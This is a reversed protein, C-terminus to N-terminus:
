TTRGTPNAMAERAEAQGEPGFMRGLWVGLAIGLTGSGAYVMPMARSLAWADGATTLVLARDGMVLAGLVHGIIGAALPAVVITITNARPWVLRVIMVSLATAAAFGFVAQGILDTRMFLWGLVLCGVFTLGAGLLSIPAFPRAQDSEGEGRPVFRALAVALILVPVSWFLVEAALLLSTRSFGLDAETMLRVAQDLSMSRYAVFTWGVGYLFLALTRNTLRGVVVAIVLFCVAAVLAAVLSGTPDDALVLPAGAVGNLADLRGHTWVAVPLAVAAAVLTAFWSKLTNLM